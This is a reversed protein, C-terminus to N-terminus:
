LYTAQHQHTLLFLIMNNKTYSSETMYLIWTGSIDATVQNFILNCKHTELTGGSQSIETGNTCLVNQDGEKKSTCYLYEIQTDPDIRHWDCFDWTLDWFGQFYFCSQNLGAEHVTRPLKTIYLIIFM